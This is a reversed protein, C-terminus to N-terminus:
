QKPIDAVACTRIADGQSRNAVPHLFVVSKHCRSDLMSLSAGMALLSVGVLSRSGDCRNPRFSYSHAQERIPIM